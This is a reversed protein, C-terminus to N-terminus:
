THTRWRQLAAAGRERPKLKQPSGVLRHLLRWVHAPHYTVGFTQRIVEAM